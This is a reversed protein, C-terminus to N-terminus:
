LAILSSAYMGDYVRHWAADGGIYRRYDSMLEHPARPTLVITPLRRSFRDAMVADLHEIEHAHAPALGSLLLVDAYRMQYFQDRTVRGAIDREVASRDDPRILGPPAEADSETTGRLEVKLMYANLAFDRWPVHYYSVFPRREALRELVFRSIRASRGRDANFILWGQGDKIRGDLTAFYHTLRGLLDRDQVSVNDLLILERDRRPM